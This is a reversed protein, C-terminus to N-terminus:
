EALNIKDKYRVTNSEDQLWESLERYFDFQITTFLLLTGVESGEKKRAQWHNRRKDLKHAVRSAMREMEGYAAQRGQEFYASQMATIENLTKTFTPQKEM